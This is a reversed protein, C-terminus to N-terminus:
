TLTIHRPVFSRVQHRVRSSRWRRVLWKVRWEEVLDDYNASYYELRSAEGRLFARTNKALPTLFVARRHGSFVLQEEDIGLQRAIHRLVHIKAHSGREGYRALRLKPDDFKGILMNFLSQPIHFTSYGKTYGVFKFRSRGGYSIGKYQPTNSSYAGCTVLLAIDTVIRELKRTLQKAYRLAYLSRFENSLLTYCLLKGSTLFSYPPVGICRTVDMIYALKSARVEKFDKTNWGIWSDRVGLQRVSSGISGLAMLAASKQGVDFLLFKLRRGPRDRTPFSSWLSFYDVVDFDERSECIRLIPQIRSLQLRSGKILQALFQPEKSKLYPKRLLAGKICEQRYQKAACRKTRANDTNDFTQILHILSRKLLAHNTHSEMRESFDKM